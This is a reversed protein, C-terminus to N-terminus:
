QTLRRNLLRVNLRTKREPAMPVNGSYTVGKKMGSYVLARPKEDLVPAASTAPKLMEEATPRMRVPRALSLRPAKFVNNKEFKIDPRLMSAMQGAEVDRPGNARKTTRFPILLPPKKEVIGVTTLLTNPLALTLTAMLM